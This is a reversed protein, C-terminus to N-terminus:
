RRGSPPWRWRRPTGTCNGHGPRWCRGACNPPRGPRSGGDPDAARDPEPTNWPRRLGVVAVAALGMLVVWITMARPVDVLFYYLLKETM